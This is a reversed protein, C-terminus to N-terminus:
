KKTFDLVSKAARLGPHDQGRGLREMTLDLASRQKDPHSLAQDLAPIINEAQCDAGIFEPVDRTESVLNVLTVTDTLLMRSIILRSFWQMDYAIIMPTGVSALELSVTGSAALAVDCAAFAIRRQQLGGEAPAPLIRFPRKFGDLHKAIGNQLHPLTPFLFTMGSFEPAEIVNRFVPMLRDIESNRSGPLVALCSAAGLDHQDRFETLQTKTIPPDVAAPHGVFDCSMGARHMFPPEFPLLALVHDIYTAMKAARGARWAWVTPAVYHVTPINKIEKVKKAVRLSFEPADITLVMDARWEIAAQATERIRKKFHFYKPLIEAIGMVSLEDMPFLSKLGHQGMLPGGVGAFEITPYLSKLGSMLDAGLRDGSAEGATLFIKM